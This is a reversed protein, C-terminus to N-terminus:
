VVRLYYYYFLVYNCKQHHKEAGISLSKIIIFKKWRYQYFRIKYHYYNTNTTLLTREKGILEEDNIKHKFNFYFCATNRSIKHLYTFLLQIKNM